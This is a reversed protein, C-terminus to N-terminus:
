GATGGRPRPAGLRRAAVEWAELGVPWARTLAAHVVSLETALRRAARARQEDGGALRGPVADLDDLLGMAAGYAGVADDIAAADVDADTRALCAFSPVVGEARAAVLRDHGDLVVHGALGSVHLLVVPALAGERALRRHARVRPSDPDDLARLPILATGGASTQRVYDIDATVAGDADVVPVACEDALWRPADRRFAAADPWPSPHGTLAWGGTHLPSRPAARLRDRVAHLWRGPDAGLARCEAATWPPLVGPSGRGSPYAVTAGTWDADVRAVLLVDGAADVLLRGGPAARVCLTPVRPGDEGWRVVPEGPTM